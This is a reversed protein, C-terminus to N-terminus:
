RGIESTGVELEARAHRLQHGGFQAVAADRSSLCARLRPLEQATRAEGCLQGQIRSM